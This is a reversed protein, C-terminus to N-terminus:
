PDYPDVGNLDEIFERYHELNIVQEASFLATGSPSRFVSKEGKKVGFGDERWADFSLWREANKM